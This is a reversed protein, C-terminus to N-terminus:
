LVKELKTLHRLNKELFSRRVDTKSICIYRNPEERCEKISYVFQQMYENYKQDPDDDMYKVEDGVKFKSM